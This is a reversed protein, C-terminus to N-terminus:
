YWVTNALYVQTTKSPCMILLRGPAAIKERLLNCKEKTRYGADMQAPHTKQQSRPVHSSDKTGSPFRRERIQMYFDLQFRMSDDSKMMLFSSFMNKLHILTKKIIIIVPTQTQNVAATLGSDILCVFMFYIFSFIFKDRTTESTKRLSLLLNVSCIHKIDYVTWCVFGVNM